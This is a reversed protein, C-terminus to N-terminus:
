SPGTHRSQAGYQEAQGQGVGAGHVWDLACPWAVQGAAKLVEVVGGVDSKQIQPFGCPGCSLEAPWIQGVLWPDLVGAKACSNTISEWSMNFAGNKKTLWNPAEPDSLTPTIWTFAIYCLEVLASLDKSSICVNQSMQSKMSLKNVM